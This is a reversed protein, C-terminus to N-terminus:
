HLNKIYGIQEDVNNDNRTTIHISQYYFLTNKKGFTDGPYLIM